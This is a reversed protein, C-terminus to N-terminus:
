KQIGLVDFVFVLTAGGPVGQAGADGYGLAPPIVAIVQSGVKQGILATAFGPILGGNGATAAFSAPLGSTWSSDFVASTDWLMGTYNLVVNDGEAVTDGDGQKLVAVSLEAPPATQPIVIGPQGSPALVVAPLGAQPLQDAGNAKGLFRDVVDIVLVVPTDAPNTEAVDQADLTIVVRSGVTACEVVTSFISSGDGAVTRLPAAPDYGTSTVADGTSADYLTAQMDAVDGPYVVPGDGATLVSIEMQDSILPQPFHANPDNAFSGFATVISSANGPAAPVECSAGASGTASCSALTAVLATATILASITRV